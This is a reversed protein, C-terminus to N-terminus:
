KKEIAITRPKMGEPLERHLEVTLVGDQMYAGTVSVHEALVFHRNFSRSSIGRHLYVTEDQSDTQKIDPRTGEIVLKKGDQTITLDEMVFGAVAIEIVYDDDSKQIVNYPPYNNDAYPLNVMQGFLDDFGIGRKSFFDPLGASTLTTTKM